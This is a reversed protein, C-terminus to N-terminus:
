ASQFLAEVEGLQDIAIVVRDNGAVWRTEVVSGTFVFEGARLMQDRHNLSNALWALAAFPHGMVEAAKGKGVEVGNILTRGALSPIDLRQWDRLPEGIVCGANFFDDAILTPTDMSKYNEYRDDVVEMGVTVAEVAQTISERTHPATGRPLDRGLFVVVECEVGVHLFDAHRLTAHRCHVTTAFVGGACPSDINLFRQMVPTTCGIKHGTVAGLGRESLLEHLRYQIRYATAEEKPQYDAPLHQFRTRDLRHQCLLEAAGSIPDIM